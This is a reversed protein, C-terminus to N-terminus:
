SKPMRIIIEIFDSLEKIEKKKKAEKPDEIEADKEKGINILDDIKEGRKEAKISEAAIVEDEHDSNNQIDKNRPMFQDKKIM